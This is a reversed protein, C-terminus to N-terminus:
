WGIGLTAIKLAPLAWSVPRHACGTNYWPMLLELELFIRCEWSFVAFEWTFYLDRKLGFRPIPGWRKQRYPSVELQWGLFVSDCVLLENGWSTLPLPLPLASGSPDTPHEGAINGDLFSCCERDHCSKQGIRWNPLLPGCETTVLIHPRNFRNIGCICFLSFLKFLKFMSENMIRLFTM